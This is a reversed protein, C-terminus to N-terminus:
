RVLVPLGVVPVRREQLGGRELARDQQDVTQGVVVDEDRVRQPEGGGQELGPARVLQHQDRVGRVERARRRHGLVEKPNLEVEEAARQGRLGPRSVGRQEGAAMGMTTCFYPPVETPVVSRIRLTASRMTRARSAPLSTTTTTEAIPSLVSSSSAIAASMVGAGSGRSSSMSRVAPSRM